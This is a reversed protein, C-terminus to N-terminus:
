YIYILIFHLGDINIMGKRVSLMLVNLLNCSLAM